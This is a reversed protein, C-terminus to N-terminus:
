IEKKCHPCLTKPIPQKEKLVRYQKTTYLYECYGQCQFQPEESDVRVVVGFCKKCEKEM